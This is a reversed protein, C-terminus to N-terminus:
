LYALLYRWHAYVALWVPILGIAFPAFYELTFRRTLLIWVASLWIQRTWESETVPVEYRITNPSDVYGRRDRLLVSATLHINVTRPDRRHEEYPNGAYTRTYRIETDPGSVLAQGLQPVLSDRVQESAWEPPDATTAKHGLTGRCHATVARLFDSWAGVDIFWVVYQAYAWGWVIWALLYVSGPNTIDAENGLINVKTFTLSLVNVCALGVSVAILFRRNRVFGATVNQDL